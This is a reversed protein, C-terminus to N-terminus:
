QEHGPHRRAARWVFISASSPTVVSGDAISGAPRSCFSWLHSSDSSMSSRSVAPCTGCSGIVGFSTFVTRMVALESWGVLNKGCASSGGSSAASPTESRSLPIPALPLSHLSLARWLALGASRTSNTSRAEAAPSSASTSDSDCTATGPRQGVLMGKSSLPWPVSGVDAALPASSNSSGFLSGARLAAAASVPRSAAAESASSTGTDFGISSRGEASGIRKADTVASTFMRAPGPLLARTTVTIGEPLRTPTISQVAQDPTAILQFDSIETPGRVNYACSRSFHRNVRASACEPSILFQCRVSSVLLQNFKKSTQHM